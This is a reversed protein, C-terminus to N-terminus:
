YISADLNNVRALMVTFQDISELLVTVLIAAIKSPIVFRPKVWRGLHGLSFTVRRIHIHPNVWGREICLHWAPSVGGLKVTEHNEGYM